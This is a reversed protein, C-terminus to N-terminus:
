AARVAGPKLEALCQRLQAQWDSLRVNFTSLLKTNDLMSNLPRAAPLPFDPTKIRILRASGRGPRLGRTLELMRETFAYRSVTGLASLNYIGTASRAHELDRILACTTESLSQAWTPSGIQDDVVHLESQEEALRLM